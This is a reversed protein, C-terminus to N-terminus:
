FDDPLQPRTVLHRRRDRAFTDIAPRAFRFTGVRRDIGARDSPIQIALRMGRDRLIDVVYNRGFAGFAHAKVIMFGAGCDTGYIAANGIWSIEFGFSDQERAGPFQM